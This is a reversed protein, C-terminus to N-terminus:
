VSAKDKKFDSIKRCIDIFYKEDFANKMLNIDKHIWQINDITYSKSSDIRDLSATNDKKDSLILKIGSLTCIHNQQEFKDWLDKKTVYVDINRARAGALVRSYIKGKIGKYENCKGCGKSLGTLLNNSSVNKINGCACKCKWFPRRHKNTGNRELVTWKGFTKNLLNTCIKESVKLYGCKKCRKSKGSTLDGHNVISVAGCKCRCKWKKTFRKDISSLEIVTWDEFINGSNIKM